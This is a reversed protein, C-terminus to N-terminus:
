ETKEKKGSKKRGALHAESPRWGFSVLSGVLKVVLDFAKKGIMAALVAIALFPLAVVYALGIFPGFLLRVVTGFGGGSAGEGGPPAEGYEDSYLM